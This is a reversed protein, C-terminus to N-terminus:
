SSAEIQIEGVCACVGSGERRGTAAVQKLLRVM